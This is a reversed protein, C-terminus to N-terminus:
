LVPFLFVVSSTRAQQCKRREAEEKIIILGEDSTNHRCMFVNCWVEPNFPNHIYLFFAVCDHIHKQSQQLPKMLPFILVLSPTPWFSSLRFTAAHDKMSAVASTCLSPPWVVTRTWRPHWSAALCSLTRSSFTVPNNHPGRQLVLSGNLKVFLRKKGRRGKKRKQAQLSEHM